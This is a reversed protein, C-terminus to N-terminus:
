GIASWFVNWLPIRPIGGPHRFGQAMFRGILGDIPYHMQIRIDADESSFPLDKHGGSEQHNQHSM